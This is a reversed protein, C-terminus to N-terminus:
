DSTDMDSTKKAFPKKATPKEAGGRGGKRKGGSASSDIPYLLFVLGPTDKKLEEDQLRKNRTFANFVWERGLATTYRDTIPANSLEERIEEAWQLAGGHEGQWWKQNDLLRQKVAKQAKQYTEEDNIEPLLDQREQRGHEKYRAYYNAKKNYICPGRRGGFYEDLWTHCAACLGIFDDRHKVRDAASLEAYANDRGSKQPLSMDNKQANGHIHAFEILDGMGKEGQLKGCCPCSGCHGIRTLIKSAQGCGRVIGTEEKRIKWYNQNQVLSETRVRVVNNAKRKEYNEKNERPDRWERCRVSVTSKAITKGSKKEKPDLYTRISVPVMKCNKTHKHDQKTCASAADVIIFSGMGHETGNGRERKGGGSSDLSSLLSPMKKLDESSFQSRAVANHDRTNPTSYLKSGEQFFKQRRNGSKRGGGSDCGTTYKKLEEMLKDKTIKVKGTKGDFRLQWLPHDDNLPRIPGSPGWEIYQPLIASPAAVVNNQMETRTKDAHDNATLLQAHAWQGESLNTADGNHNRRIDSLFTGRLSSKTINENIYILQADTARGVFRIKDGQPHLQYIDRLPNEPVQPSLMRFFRPKKKAFDINLHLHETSDGCIITRNYIDRHGEMTHYELVDTFTDRKSKEKPGIICDLVLYNFNIEIGGEVSEMEVKVESVFQLFDKFRTHNPTPKYQLLKTDYAIAVATFPNPVVSTLRAAKAKTPKEVLVEDDDDDDDDPCNWTLSPMTAPSETDDAEGRPRMWEWHAFRGQGSYKLLLLPDSKDGYAEGQQAWTGDDLKRVVVIRRQKLPALVLLENAGLNSGRKRAWAIYDDLTDGKFGHARVDAVDSEVLEKLTFDGYMEDQRANMEDMTEDRVAQARTADSGTTGTTAQDISYPLCDGAGANGVAEFHTAVDLTDPSIISVSDDSDDSDDSGLLKELELLAKEEEEKRRREVEEEDDDEEEKESEKKSERGRERGRERDLMERERRIMRGRAENEVKGPVSSAIRAANDWATRGAIRHSVFRRSLSAVSADGDSSSSHASHAAGRGPGAPVLSIGSSEMLRRYDEYGYGDGRGRGERGGYKERREGLRHHQDVDVVEVEFGRRLVEVADGFDYLYVDLLSSDGDHALLGLLALRFSSNSNHQAKM